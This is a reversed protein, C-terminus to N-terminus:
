GGLLKEVPVLWDFASFYVQNGSRLVQRHSYVGSEPQKYFEICSEPINFIWVMPIGAAAYAPLKIERDYELSSDAVEILLIVSAAGPHKDRYYDDRWSLVSLDPEPESHQFAIFDEPSRRAIFDVIEGFITSAIM